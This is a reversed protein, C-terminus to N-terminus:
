LKCLKTILAMVRSIVIIVLNYSLPGEKYLGTVLDWLLTGCAIVQKQVSLWNYARLSWTGDYDM